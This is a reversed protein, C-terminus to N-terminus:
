SKCYWFPHYDRPTPTPGPYMPQITPPWPIEPYTPSTPLTAGKSCPCELLTPNLVRGCKPCIWGMPAPTSSPLDQYTNLEKLLEEIHLDDKVTKNTVPLDKVFGFETQRPDAEIPQPINTPKKKSKKPM